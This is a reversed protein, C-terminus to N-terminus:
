LWGTEFIIVKVVLDYGVMKFSAVKVVLDCGVAMRSLLSVFYSAM